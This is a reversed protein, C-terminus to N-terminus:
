FLLNFFSVTSIVFERDGKREINAIIGRSDREKDKEKLKTSARLALETKVTVSSDKPQQKLCLLRRTTLVLQRTKTKSVPVPLPILRNALHRLSRTEVNSNFIIKEDSPLGLISSSVHSRPLGLYRAKMYLFVCLDVDNTPGNGQVPSQIKNRGREEDSGHQTDAPSRKTAGITMSDMIQEIHGTHSEESSSSTGTAPSELPTTRPKEFHIEPGQRPIDPPQIESAASQKPAPLPKRIEGMPGVDVSASTDNYQTDPVWDISDDDRVGVLDDWAAGVDDWVGDAGRGLSVDKRVLGPELPPPPDTWLTKWNISAFFPHSRLTEM